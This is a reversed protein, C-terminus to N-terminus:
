PEIEEEYWDGAVAVVDTWDFGHLACYHHLDTLLNKVKSDLDDDDPPLGTPCRAEWFAALAREAYAAKQAQHQRRQEAHQAEELERGLKILVRDLAADPGCSGYQGGLILDHVRRAAALDFLVQASTRPGTPPATSTM